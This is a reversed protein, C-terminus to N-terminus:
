EIPNEGFPVELVRTYGTEALHGDSGVPLGDLTVWAHGALGPEGEEERRFGVNLVVGGRGALLGGLIL